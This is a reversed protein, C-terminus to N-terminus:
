AGAGLPSDADSGTLPAAAPIHRYPELLSAVDTEDAAGSPSHLWRELQMFLPGAEEDRRLKSVAEAVGMGTLARRERWHLLLLRELQARDQNSLQGRSAGEVLPTLRDALTMGGEGSELQQAARKSRGILLLALLGVLWLAAAIKIKTGYGGVTGTSTPALDNPLIQDFALVAQVQILVPPLEEISSGDVRELHERLDLTGVEFPTVEIDYRFDSGHPFVGLVRLLVAAKGPDAVDKARLASGPLHLEEIRVRMGVTTRTASPVPAASGAPVTELIISEAQAVPESAQAPCPIGGALGTLGLFFTAIM